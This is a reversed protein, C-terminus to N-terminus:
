TCRGADGVARVARPLEPDPVLDRARGHQGAAMRRLGPIADGARRHPQPVRDDVRTPGRWRRRRIPGSTTAAACGCRARPAAAASHSRHERRRDTCCRRRRGCTSRTATSRRRVTSWSASGTPTSARRSCSRSRRAAGDANRCARGGGADFRLVDGFVHPRLALLHARPRGFGHASLRVGVPRGRGDVARDHGRHECSGRDRHRVGTSARSLARVLARVQPRVRHDSPGRPRRDRGRRRAGARGAGRRAPRPLGAGAGHGRPRLRPRLRRGPRRGGAVHASSRRAHHLALEGQGLVAHCRSVLWSGRAANVATAGEARRWHYTAAYARGLLDDAEDDTLQRGDLLEWTSNNAAVGQM